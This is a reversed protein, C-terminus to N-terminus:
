PGVRFPVDSLYLRALTGFTTVVGIFGTRAGVPVTTLILTKSIVTFEAPANGFTVSTAGKFDSGLIMVPTGVIGSDPLMKVLPNMSTSLCFITGSSNAGGAYTTGYFEGDTSQLLTGVPSIGQTDVFHYVVKMKGSVSMKFITSPANSTGYLNGDTAQVLAGAMPTGAVMGDFSYMTTLIGSPTLRFITGVQHNGGAQTTGYFNGDSAHLLGNPAFGDSCNVNNSCFSYLTTMSGIPSIRFITGYRQESQDGYTTGYLHGDDGWVLTSLPYEGDKCASESCFNHITTLKGTRTLRFVTGCGVGSSGCFSGTGGYQTTGYFSGDPGQVLGAVPFAGNTGNFYALTTLKGSPTIKFITGQSSGLIGHTTGYLDGNTALTLAGMPENGNECTYDKDPCSFKYITTLVGSPTMRFITGNGSGAGTGGMMTTGYYNGDAAQVLGAYPNMGDPKNFNFMTSFSQAPLPIATLACLLLLASARMFWSLKRMQNDGERSATERM